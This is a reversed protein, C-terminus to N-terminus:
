LANRSSALGRWYRDHFLSERDRGCIYRGPGKRALGQNFHKSHEAIVDWDEKTGELMQKFKAQVPAHGDAM